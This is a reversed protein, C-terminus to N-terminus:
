IHRPKDEPRSIYGLFLIAMSDYRVVSFYFPRDFMFTAAGRANPIRSRLVPPWNFPQRDGVGTGNMSIHAILKQLSEPHSRRVPAAYSSTVSFSPLLVDVLVLDRASWINGADPRSIVKAIASKAIRIVKSSFFMLVGYRHDQCPLEVITLGSVHEVRVIGRLHSANVRYSSGNARFTLPKGGIQQLPWWRANFTASAVLDPDVNRYRHFRCNHGLRRTPASSVGYVDAVFTEVGAPNNPEQCLESLKTDDRGYLAPKVLEDLAPSYVASHGLATNRDFEYQSDANGATQTLFWMSLAVVLSTVSRLRITTLAGQDIRSSTRYLCRSRNAPCRWLYIDV